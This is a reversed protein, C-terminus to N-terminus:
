DQMWQLYCVNYILSLRKQKMFPLVTAHLEENARVVSIYFFLEVALLTVSFSMQVGPSSFADTKIWTNEANKFCVFPIFIWQKLHRERVDFATHM